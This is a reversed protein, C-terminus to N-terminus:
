SLSAAYGDVPLLLFLLSAFIYFFFVSGFLNKLCHLTQEMGAKFWFSAL